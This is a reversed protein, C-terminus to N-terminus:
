EPAEGVQEPAVGGEDLISGAMEEVYAAGEHFAARLIPDTTLAPLETTREAVANVLNRLLRIPEVAVRMGDLIAQGHEILQQDDSTTM